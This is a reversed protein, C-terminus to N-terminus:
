PGPEGGGLRQLASAYRASLGDREAAPLLALRAPALDDQLDARKVARAIPDRAVREIFSAYDEDRRQTLADLAALVEEACGEFRLEDRTVGCGEAVDHLVAALQASPDDLRLAVRLPHWIYPRGAEDTAGRHADAAFIIADEIDM